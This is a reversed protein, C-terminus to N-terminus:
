SGGEGTLEKVLLIAVCYAGRETAEQLDNYCRRQQEDVAFWELRFTHLQMGTLNLQVGTRHERNELCVAASEALMVGSATTLGPMGEGLSALVISKDTPSDM